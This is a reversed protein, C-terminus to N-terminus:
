AGYATKLASLLAQTLSKVAEAMPLARKLDFQDPTRMDLYTDQVIEFQVAHINNAPNGHHRTTYGGKFRGDLISSHFREEEMWEKIAEVMFPACARQDHTGINIDPLRGSFLNPIAPRVSHADILLAYGHKDRIAALKRKLAAHYPEFFTKRRRSIEAEDPEQDALYIRNGDFDSLPCLNTEFQGPYLSQGVPDRNLDIVYRNFRAFQTSAGIGPAFDFLRHVNFDTEGVRQGVENMHAAIDPTLSLGVHPSAVLLPSAGDHADFLGQAPDLFSAHLTMPM